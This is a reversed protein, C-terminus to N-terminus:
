LLLRKREDRIKGRIWAEQEVTWPLQAMKRGVVGRYYLSRWAVVEGDVLVTLSDTATKTSPLVYSAAWEDVWAGLVREATWRGEWRVLSPPATLPLSEPWPPPADVGDWAELEERWERYLAEGELLAQRAYEVVKPANAATTRRYDEWSVAARGMLRSAEDHAKRVVAEDLSADVMRRQGPPLKAPPATEAAMALVGSWNPGIGAVLDSALAEIRRVMESRYMQRCITYGLGDDPERFSRAVIRDDETMASGSKRVARALRPLEAVLRAVRERTELLVPVRVKM